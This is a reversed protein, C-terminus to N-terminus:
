PAIMGRKAALRRVVDHRQMMRTTGNGDVGSGEGFTGSVTVTDGAELWSEVVKVGLDRWNRFSWELHGSLRRITEPTAEDVVYTRSHLGDFTAVDGDIPVILGDSAVAFPVTEHRDVVTTPGGDNLAPVYAHIRWHVCAWDSVPSRLPQAVPAVVGEIKAYDGPPVSGLPVVRALRDRLSGPRMLWVLLACATLLLLWTMTIVM